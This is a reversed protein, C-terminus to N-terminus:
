LQLVTVLPLLSPGLQRHHSLLQCHSSSPFPHRRLPFLTPIDSAPSAGRHSTYLSSFDPLSRLGRRWPGCCHAQEWCAAWVQHSAPADAGLFLPQKHQLVTCPFCPMVRVVHENINKKVAQSRARPRHTASGFQAFTSTPLPSPSFSLLLCPSFPLSLADM